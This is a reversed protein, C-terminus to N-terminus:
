ALGRGALLTVTTSVIAAASWAQKKCASQGTLSHYDSYKEDDYVYLEIPTKFHHIARMLAEEVKASEKLFGLKELGEAILSNDHPWISGNHYSNPNYVRSLKSLTRIGARPEFLDNKLLRKVIAPLYENDIVCDVVGDQVKNKCAWLCHGMSSRASVLPKGNGDVAFALEVGGKSDHVIYKENFLEKLRDAKLKLILALQPNSLEYYDSWLRLALYTYAQVEVPAIPYAPMTGDEHFISEESDMWSQTKLGGHTRVSSFHYDILGDNNSDGYNLIWALAAEVNPMVKVAFEQDDTKQIYRYLAVLLLPTADVTDYNKMTGDPYVYWPSLTRATLREHNNVRYEHICKGPEEGSEINVEKGQLQLLNLLIKKSLTLLYETNPADHDTTRLLKLATILSDRGFVCGYIEEKHSALIGNETELEKITQWGLSSLQDLKKRDM